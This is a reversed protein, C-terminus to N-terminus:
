TYFPGTNDFKHIKLDGLYYNRCVSHHYTVGQPLFVMKQTVCINVMNVYRNDTDMMDKDEDTDMVAVNDVANNDQMGHVLGRLVMDNGVVDKNGSNGNGAGLVWRM